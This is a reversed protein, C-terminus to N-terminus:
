FGLKGPMLFRAHGQEKYRASFTFSCVGETARESSGVSNKVLNISSIENRFPVLRVPWICPLLSWGFLFDGSWTRPSSANMATFSQLQYLVYPRAAWRLQRCISSNAWSCSDNVLHFTRFSSVKDNFMKLLFWFWLSWLSLYMQCLDVSQLTFVACNIKAGTNLLKWLNRSRTPRTASEYPSPVCGSCIEVVDTTLQSSENMCWCHIYM